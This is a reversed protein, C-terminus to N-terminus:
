NGSGSIIRRMTKFSDSTRQCGIVIFTRRNKEAPSVPADLNNDATAVSHTTTILPIRAGDTPSARLPASLSRSPSLSPFSSPPPRLPHPLFCLSMMAPPLQPSRQRHVLLFSGVHAHPSAYLLVTLHCSLLSPRRTHPSAAQGEEVNLYLGHKRIPECSSM